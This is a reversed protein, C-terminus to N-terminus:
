ESTVIWIMSQEGVARALAVVPMPPEIVPYLAVAIVDRDAIPNAVRAVFEGHEDRDIVLPTGPICMEHIQPLEPKEGREIGAKFETTSIMTLRKM